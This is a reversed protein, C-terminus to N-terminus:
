NGFGTSPAGSPVTTTPSPSPSTTQADTQMKAGQMLFVSFVVAGLLLVVFKIM